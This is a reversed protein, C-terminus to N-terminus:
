GLRTPEPIIPRLVANGGLERGRSYILGWETLSCLPLCLQARRATEEDHDDADLTHPVNGAHTAGAVVILDCLSDPMVNLQSKGSM